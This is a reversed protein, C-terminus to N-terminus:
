ARTFLYTYVGTAKNMSVAKNNVYVQIHSNAGVFLKTSTVNKVEYTQGSSLLLSPKVMVGNATIQMWCTSSVDHITVSFGVNKSHVIYATEGPTVKSLSLTTVAHSPHHVLTGSPKKSSQSQNGQSSGTKTKSTSSPKKAKSGKSSSVSSSSATTSISVLKAKPSSSAVLGFLALLIILLIVVVAIIGIVTWMTRSDRTKLAYPYATGEQRKAMDPRKTALPRAVPTAWEVGEHHNGSKSVSQKQTSVDHENFSPSSSLFQTVIQQGDLGLFDAYSRVFGRAYVESPLDDWDGDEIAKLYRSRIKTTDVVDELSIHKGERTKRLFAGLEHIQHQNGQSVGPKVSDNVPQVGDKM